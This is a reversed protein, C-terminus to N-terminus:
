KGKARLKRLLDDIEAQEPFQKQLIVYLDVLISKLKDSPNQEQFHVLKTLVGNINDFRSRDDHHKKNTM